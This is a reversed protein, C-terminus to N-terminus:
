PNFSFNHFFESRYKERQENKRAGEKTTDHIVIYRLSSTRGRKSEIERRASRRGKRGSGKM